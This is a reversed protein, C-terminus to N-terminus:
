DPTYHINKLPLKLLIGLYKTSKKVTKKKKSPSLTVKPFIYIIFYYFGAVAIFHLYTSALECGFLIKATRENSRISYNVLVQKAM